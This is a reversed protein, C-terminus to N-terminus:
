SEVAIFIVSDGRDSLDWYVKATDFTDGSSFRNYLWLEDVNLCQIIRVQSIFM